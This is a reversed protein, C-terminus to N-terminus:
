PTPHDTVDSNGRPLVYRLRDSAPKYLTSIGIVSIYDNLSPLTSLGATSVRIADQSGDTILMYGSGKETVKGWTTILLGVNNLGTGGLVGYQGLLPTGWDGGGVSRNPMGLPTLPTHTTVIIVIPGTLCREGEPTTGLTGIVNVVSGRVLGAVAAPVAVRMGSSRDEEEVYFFGAFDTASTTAIRGSISVYTGDLLMKAAGISDPVVPEPLDGAWFGIWHLYSTNSVFGAASQGISSNLKYGGGTVLGGGSNISYWDIKYDAAVACVSCAFGLVCVLALIRIPMAKVEKGSVNYREFPWNTL